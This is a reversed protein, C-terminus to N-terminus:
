KATAAICAANKAVLAACFRRAEDKSEFGAVRLRVFTRGNSEATQIVRGKGDFLSGFRGTLRAWESEADAQTDFAGIQVLATGAPIAGPDVARVPTAPAAAPTARAAEDAAA